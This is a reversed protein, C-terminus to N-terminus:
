VDSTVPQAGEAKIKEQLQTITEVLGAAHPFPWHRDARRIATKADDLSSRCLSNYLRRNPDNKRDESEPKRNGMEPKM